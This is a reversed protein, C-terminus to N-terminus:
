HHMTLEKETMTDTTIHIIVWIYSLPSFLSTLYVLDIVELMDMAVVPMLDLM